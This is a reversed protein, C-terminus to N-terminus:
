FTMITIKRYVSALRRLQLFGVGFRQSDDAALRDAIERAALGEPITVDYTKVRGEVMRTLIEAPTLAASIEYEGFHLKSGAGQYRPEVAFAGIVAVTGTVDISDARIAGSGAFNYSFNTM